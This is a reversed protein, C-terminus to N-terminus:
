RIEICVYSLIPLVERSLVPQPTRRNPYDYRRITYIYACYENKTKSVSRSLAAVVHQTGTCQAHYNYLIM